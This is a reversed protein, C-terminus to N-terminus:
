KTNMSLITENIDNTDFIGLNFLKFYVRYDKFVRSLVSPLLCLSNVCCKHKIINIQSFCIKFEPPLAYLRWINTFYAM